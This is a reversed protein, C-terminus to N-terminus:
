ISFEAETPKSQYNIFFTSDGIRNVITLAPVSDNNEADNPVLLSWKTVTFRLRGLLLSFESVNM